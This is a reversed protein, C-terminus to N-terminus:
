SQKLLKEYAFIAQEIINQDTVSCYLCNKDEKDDLHDQNQPCQKKWEDLIEKYSKPKKALDNYEDEHMMWYWERTRQPKKLTKYKSIDGAPFVTGFAYEKM